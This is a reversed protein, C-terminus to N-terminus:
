TVLHLKDNPSMDDIDNLEFGPLPAVPGDLLPDGTEEMWQRLREQMEGLAEAHAPDGALNNAENPDFILDYLQEKAVPRQQWGHELWEDKSPSDDCNPLVPIARDEFRRIYKWRRTRVCRQPEYSAHYNVEAFVADNVEDQEGRIIPMFSRGQLFDPPEVGAAECLTPYVDVHSVLADVVRGGRFGGPGRMILLVGIGHDFLNCKMHPFAIGHDTTCVVLTREALGSRDLAELLTGVADDYNRACTKFAAMDQRTRPTDPLPAPPKCYNPNNEASPEPFVRHTEGTGVTLFFPETPANDIFEVAKPLIKAAGGSKVELVEDYGIHCPDKAIHQAGCLTSRYGAPRLTHLVHASLDDMVCGRNVLGIQGCTHPFQGTLLAARSASCTPNACFAQRFLVGEEALRQLNPTPIAHGYPQIYRGTDHSHLYIINPRDM